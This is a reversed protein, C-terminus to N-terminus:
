DSYQKAYEDEMEKLYHHTNIIIRYGLFAFILDVFGIVLNYDTFPQYDFTLLQLLLTGAPTIFTVGLVFM